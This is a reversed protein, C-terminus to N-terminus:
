KRSPRASKAKVLKSKKAKYFKKKVPREQKEDVTKEIKLRSGVALARKGRLRNLASLREVSMGYKSAISSFTEGKKVKHRAIVKRLSEVRSDAPAAAAGFVILKQGLTIDPDKLNNWAILQSIYTRYLRAISGLTEGEVVVHIKETKGDSGQLAAGGQLSRARALLQEREITKASKYAYIEQEQKQFPVTFKKPLRLINAVGVTAPIIGLKYQPNLFQLDNSPVGITESIQEFSL